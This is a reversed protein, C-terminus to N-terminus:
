IRVSYFLNVQSKIDLREFRSFGAKRMLAETRAPGMCTGLGPGDNALSQTMCHFVSFGYFMTGIPHCNNELKDGAKPEIVFLTGDSKLHRRIDLLTADPDAFDHVCDCATILDFKQGDMGDIPTKHFSVRSDLGRELAKNSAKEVSGSDLDIGMFTSKPFASALALSVHGTGCGVDLAHGGSELKTVVEPMTPLWYSVLKNEYNGRNALDVADVAEQGFADFSVGGGERFAVALEPAVALLSTAMGYLGGAFHDTGESAVLFAHEDPLEFTVKKPDYDLYGASVMGNLWEQVYRPQLGSLEVVRELSMAGQGQMAKFLGTRVGIYGLGASMAGAMDRFIHNTFTKLKEKDMAVSQKQIKEGITFWELRNPNLSLAMLDTSAVSRIAEEYFISSSPRGLEMTTPRRIRCGAQFCGTCFCSSLLFECPNM